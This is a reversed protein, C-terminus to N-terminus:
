GVRRGGPRGARVATRRRRQVPIHGRLRPPEPIGARAPPWSRPWSTRPSCPFSSTGSRPRSSAQSPTPAANTPTRPPTGSSSSSCRASSTTPTPTPIAAWSPSRGNRSMGRRLRPGTRCAPPSWTRLPPGSRPRLTPASRRPHNRRPRLHLEFSSVMPQFPGADLNREYGRGIKRPTTEGTM